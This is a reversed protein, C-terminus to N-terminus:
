QGLKKRLLLIEKIETDSLYEKDEFRYVGSAVDFRYLGLDRNDLSIETLSGSRYSVEGYLGNGPEDYASTFDVRFHNAIAVLVTTNPTWRTSYEIVDGGCVLGFFHGRREPYFGPLQGKHGTEWQRQMALFFDRLQRM